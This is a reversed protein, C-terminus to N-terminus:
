GAPPNGQGLYRALAREAGERTHYLRGDVTSPGCGGNAYEGDHVIAFHGAPVLDSRYYGLLNGCGAPGALIRAPPMFARRQNSITLM